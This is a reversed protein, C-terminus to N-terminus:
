ALFVDEYYQYFYIKGAILDKKIGTVLNPKATAILGCFLGLFIESLWM